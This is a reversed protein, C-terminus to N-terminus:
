NAGIIHEVGGDLTTDLASNYTTFADGGDAIWASRGNIAPVASSWRDGIWQYTVSNDGVYEQGLAPDTPFTIAM